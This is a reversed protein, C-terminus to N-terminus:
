ESNCKQHFPDCWWFRQRLEQCATEWRDLVDEGDCVVCVFLNGEGRAPVGETGNAYVWRRTDGVDFCVGCLHCRLEQLMYALRKHQDVLEQTVTHPNQDTFSM